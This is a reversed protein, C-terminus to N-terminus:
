FPNNYPIHFDDERIFQGAGGEAHPVFDEWVGAVALGCFDTLQNNVSERVCDSRLQVAKQSSVAVTLNPVM